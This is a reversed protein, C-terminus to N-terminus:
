FSILQKHILSSYKHLLWLFVFLSGTWQQFNLKGTISEMSSCEVMLVYGHRTNILAGMLFGSESLLVSLYSQRLIRHSKGAHYWMGTVVQSMTTLRKSWQTSSILLMRSRLCRGLLIRSTIKKIQWCRWRTFLMWHETLVNILRTFYIWQLLFLSRETNKPLLPMVTPGLPFSKTNDFESALKQKMLYM